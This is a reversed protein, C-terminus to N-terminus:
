TELSISSPQNNWELMRNNNLDPQPIVVPKFLRHKLTWYAQKQDQTWTTVESPPRNRIMDILPSALTTFGYVLRRYYLCMGLFAKVQEITAPLPFIASMDRPGDELGRVQQIAAPVSTREVRRGDPESPAASVLGSTPDLRVAM